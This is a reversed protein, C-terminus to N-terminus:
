ALRGHERRWVTAREKAEEIAEAPLLSELGRLHPENKFRAGKPQIRDGRLTESLHLWKYAEILEEPATKMAFRSPWLGAMFQRFNSVGAQDILRLAYDHMGMPMGLLDASAKLAEMMPDENAVTPNQCNGCCDGEDAQRNEHQGEPGCGFLLRTSQFTVSMIDGEFNLSVPIRV